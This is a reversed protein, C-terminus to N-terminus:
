ESPPRCDGGWFVAVTIVAAILVLAVTMQIVSFNALDEAVFWSAIAAAIFLVPRLILSIM